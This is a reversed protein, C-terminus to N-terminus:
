QSLRARATLLERYEAERKNYARRDTRMLKEIEAIKADIASPASPIASEMRQADGPFHGKAMHLLERLREPNNLARLGRSNVENEITEGKDPLSDLMRNILAINAAYSDGWEAALEKRALGRDRMDEARVAREAEVKAVAIKGSNKSALHELDKAYRLCAFVEEESAGFDAMKNLFRTLSPQDEPSFDFAGVNYKTTRTGASDRYDHQLEDLMVSVAQKAVDNGLGYKSVEAGFHDVLPRHEDKITVGAFDYKHAPEAKEPKPQVGAAPQAGADPQREVVAAPAASALDAPQPASGAAPSRELAADSM